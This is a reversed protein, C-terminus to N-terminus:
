AYIEEILKDIRATVEETTFYTLCEEVVERVRAVNARRILNKITPISGASMSFEDLGLGLLIVAGREDGALEGCVGTWKGEKHSADIVMKMARLVAPHLPQYMAAIAENGRDVALVYQTLDNTGISFFDVIQALKDANICAAPTEVMTGIPMNENFEKGEARLEAKCEEIIEKMKFIEEASIIMPFMVLINGYAAARLLARMQPKIIDLRDFYMRVARWGLFPNMEAPFSICDAAKDGGIDLTRIVLPRGELAEAATKYAEFQVEESPLEPSKMYLFETRFLGVGEGGNELVGKCDAPSAINGVVEVHHGDKTEAPLMKVADLERVHELYKELKAEAAALEEATPNIVIDGDVADLVVTDGHKVHSLIDGTGVIAPLGMIRAIISTHSTRGGVETVFGKVYNMDMMATDSPTLDNAFVVVEDRLDNLSVRVNGTVNDLVRGGVDRIDAARERLYEDDLSALMDAVEVTAEKVARAAKMASGNIKEMVADEFTPDFLMMLHARFVDAEKASLRQETIEIVENLQQETAAIADRFLQEQEARETENATPTMDIEVVTQKMVFASAIAVGPSAIIGKM